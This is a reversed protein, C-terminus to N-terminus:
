SMKSSTIQVTIANTADLNTAKLSYVGTPLRLTKQYTGSAVVPSLTYSQSAVTDFAPTSDGLPFVDLRCGNTGSVTAGATVRIAVDGGFAGGTSFDVTSAVNAGAGLLGSAVVNGAIGATVSPGAM